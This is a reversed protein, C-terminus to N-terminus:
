GGARRGPLLVLLILLRCALVLLSLGLSVHLQTMAFTQLYLTSKLFDAVLDVYFFDTRAGARLHCVGSFLSLMCRQVLSSSTSM